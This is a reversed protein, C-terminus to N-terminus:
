MLNNTVTVTDGVNYRNGTGSWSPGAKVYSYFDKFTYGTRTFDNQVTFTGGYTRYIDSMTGSTAGNGNFTVTYLYDWQAYLTAGETTMTYEAGDTYVVNGDSTTSWGKFVYNNRTFANAKLNETSDYAISQDEMTGTGGNANFVVDYNNRQALQKVAEYIKDHIPAVLEEQKKAMEGEPGFYKQRLQQAEKEKAVIAEEKQNRQTASLKSVNQQYQKYLNEAEKSLAEVEKQYKESLTSLQNNAQQYAPINQTIYEMDILAFKQANATFVCAMLLVTVFLVKKM